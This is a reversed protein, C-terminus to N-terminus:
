LDCSWGWPEIHMENEMAIRECYGRDMEILTCSLGLKRCVRLTTGTGGFPDLVTGGCPTTLKICREVLRENLQTPHWSRRQKANGTVRPINFVDSLPLDRTVHQWTKGEQIARINAETVSFRRGLATRSDASQYIAIVDETTLKAQGNEEGAPHQGRNKTEMDRVNDGDSGLFLHNPNCCGPNDCTHLVLQGMPDVGHALRWMLRTAVYLNDGIRFRGYGERKGATWEWCDLDGRRDIKALFREVDGMTWNPLSLTDRDYCDCHIVDGPVRGRPDARKDGNEQRWSPVRIADPILPADHWRLRLLPRHNNGLDHQNHQGFTFVQVCPKAEVDGCYRGLVQKVAPGIEFTWKSNYSFWVTKAKRIFVSLWDHLLGVYEEDPHRDKYTDYGLGINDPPDAFITTWTEDTDKLYSLCDDCILKHM